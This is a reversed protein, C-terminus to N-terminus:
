SRHLARQTIWSTVADTFRDTASLHVAHGANPIVVREADPLCHDLREGLATFKEDLAGTIILSPMTLSACDSWLPRQTGTGALRLSSALGDATNTCREDLDADNFPVDAFMPQAIWDEIFPRVGIREIRDASLNDATRRAARETADDIGATASVLVIGSCRDPHQLAVHLLHRGGMSYGIWIGPPLAAALDDAARELDLAGSSTSGHGPMNPTHYDIDSLRRRFSSIVGDWSRGTQTFGHLLNLHTTV